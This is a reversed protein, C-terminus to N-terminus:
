TAARGHNQHFGYLREASKRASVAEALDTFYGLHKRYTGTAIQALWAQSRKDWCVGITGSKNTKPIVRNKLNTQKDVERLNEWRNDSRDGNIHDTESKPLNGTMYLVALCHALYRKGKLKIAIYNDSRSHGAIAGIQSPCHPCIKRTFLGTSSSYELEAKLEEQNM